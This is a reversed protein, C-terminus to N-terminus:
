IILLHVHMKRHKADAPIALMDGFVLAGEKPIVYDVTVGNKAEEARAAAQM